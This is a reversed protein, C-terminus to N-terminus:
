MSLFKSLSQEEWAKMPAGLKKELSGDDTKEDYKKTNRNQVDEESLTETKPVPAPPLPRSENM